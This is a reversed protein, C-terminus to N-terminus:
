LFKNGRLKLEKKIIERAKDNKWGGLPIQGLLEGNIGILGIVYSKIDYSYRGASIEKNDLQVNFKYVKNIPIETTGFRFRRIIITDDTIILISYLGIIAVIGIPVSIFSIMVAMVISIPIFVFPLVTIFLSIYIILPEGLLRKYKKRGM